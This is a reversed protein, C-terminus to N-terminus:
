KNKLLVKRHGEDNGIWYPPEYEIGGRGMYHRLSYTTTLTNTAVHYEVNTVVRYEWGDFLNNTMDAIPPAEALYRPVLAPISGPYEGTDAKFKEIARVIPQGEQAKARFERTRDFLIRVALVLAVLGIAFIIAVAKLVKMLQKM